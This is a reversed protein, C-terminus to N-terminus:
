STVRKILEVYQEVINKHFFKTRIKKINNDIMEKKKPLLNPLNLLM